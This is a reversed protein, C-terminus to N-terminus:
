RAEGILLWTGISKAPGALGLQVSCDEERHLRM